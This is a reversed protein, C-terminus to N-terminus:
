SSGPEVDLPEEELVDSTTTEDLWCRELLASADEKFGADLLPPPDDVLRVPALLVWSEELLPPVDEEPGDLEMLM